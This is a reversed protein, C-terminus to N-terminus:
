GPSPGDVFLLRRDLAQRRLALAEAYEPSRYWELLKVMSPFEVIVLRREAPWGGEAPEPQAGRVLYRGGYQAISDQALSRYRAAVGEDLM